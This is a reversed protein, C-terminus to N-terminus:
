PAQVATDPTEKSPNTDHRRKIALLIWGTVASILAAYFLAHGWHSTQGPTGALRVLVLGAFLLACGGARRLPSSWPHLTLACLMALIIIERGLPFIRVGLALGRGVNALMVLSLSAQTGTEGAVLTKGGRGPTMLEHDRPGTPTQERMVVWVHEIDSVLWAEHGLHRLLSAAVVARGDCDERGKEFVEAVTPLYDMVGWTDWDFAYPVREYVVDQVRAPLDSAPTQRGVQRALQALEPHQPDLVGNMNGLREICRPILWVKPYLTLAVTLVFLTTKLPWRVWRPRRHFRHWANLLSM